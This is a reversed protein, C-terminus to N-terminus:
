TYKLVNDFLKPKKDPFFDAIMDYVTWFCDFIAHPDFYM